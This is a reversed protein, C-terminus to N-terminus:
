NLYFHRVQFINGLFHLLMYSKYNWFTTNNETFILIFWWHLYKLRKTFEIVLSDFCINTNMTESIYLNLWCIINKWNSSFIELDVCIKRNRKRTTALRTGCSRNAFFKIDTHAALPNPFYINREHGM